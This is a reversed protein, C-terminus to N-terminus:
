KKLRVIDGTQFGIGSSPVATSADQGFFGTVTAQGILTETFGLSLHTSPDIIEKGPRYVDLVDGADLGTERGANIYLTNGEVQAVRGAWETEAMQQILNDLLQVIAARLARDALTEDHSARDGLGVYEKTTTEALGKGTDAMIIRGTTANVVRVDVSVEATQTKRKYIGIDTGTTKVGTESVAGTVIANLGLIKGARAATKPDIAGSMGLSQEDMLLKLKQREVVIFQQTKVLETVLIDAAAQGLRSAGYRSKVEFDVVAVRKKPGTSTIVKKVPTPKSISVAACGM